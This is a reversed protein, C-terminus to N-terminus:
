KSSHNEIETESHQLSKKKKGWNGLAWNPQERPSRMGIDKGILCLWKRKVTNEKNCFGYALSDSSLFLKFTLSLSYLSM